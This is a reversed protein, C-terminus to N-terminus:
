YQLICEINCDSGKGDLIFSFIGFGTHAQIHGLNVHTWLGTALQSKKLLTHQTIFNLWRGARGQDAKSVCEFIVFLFRPPLHRNLLICM